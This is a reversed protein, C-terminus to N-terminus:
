PEETLSGSFEKGNILIKVAGERNKLITVAPMYQPNDYGFSTCFFAKGNALRLPKGYVCGYYDGSVRTEEVVSYGEKSLSELDAAPAPLAASLCLTGFFLPIARRLSM